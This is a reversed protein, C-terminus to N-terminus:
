NTGSISAASSLYNVFHFYLHISVREFALFRVYLEITSIDVCFITDSRSYLESLRKCVILLSFRVAYTFEDTHTHADTNNM